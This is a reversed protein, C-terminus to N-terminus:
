IEIQNKEAETRLQEAFETINLGDPPTLDTFEIADFGLEKAKKIITLQTEGKQRM